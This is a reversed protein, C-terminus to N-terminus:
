NKLKMVWADNVLGSKRVQGMGSYAAGQTPYSGCVVRVINNRTFVRAEQLGAKHLQNVFETANKKTVQSALVITFSTTPATATATDAKASEQKVAQQRITTDREVIARRVAEKDIRAVKLSTDKNIIALSTKSVMMDGQLESNSVPITMVFFAIVAAAIAVANRVWSMKITIAREEDATEEAEDAALQQNLLTNTGNVTAPLPVHTARKRSKAAPHLPQMEFTSLGYFSPTLIGAECPEFELRGDANLSLVGLDNLEYYGENDLHQRLESVEEEIRRLAEPYSIDYCEVYSQALLSDNLKLQPNFGLTRLPPLFVGNEEDYRADVHHAMFGGLDPVIVCDNSLLLIEIHRELEIVVAFNSCFKSVQM